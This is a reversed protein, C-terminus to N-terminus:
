CSGASEKSARSVGRDAVMTRSGPFDFSGACSLWIGLTEPKLGQVNRDRVTFRVCQAGEGTRVAVLGCCQSIRGHYVEWRWGM